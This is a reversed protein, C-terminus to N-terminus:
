WKPIQSFFIDIREPIKWNQNNNEGFPTVSLSAISEQKKTTIRVLLNLPSKNDFREMLVADVVCLGAMQAMQNEVMWYWCVCLGQVSNTITLSWYEWKTYRLMHMFYCVQSFKEEVPWRLQFFINCFFLFVNNNCM